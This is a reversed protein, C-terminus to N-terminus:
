PAGRAQRPQPMSLALHALRARQQGGDVASEGLAEIGGIDHRRFRKELGDPLGAWSDVAFQQLETYVLADGLLVRNAM